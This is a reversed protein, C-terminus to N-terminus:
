VAVPWRDGSGTCDTASAHLTVNSRPPGLLERLTEHRGDFPEHTEVQCNEVQVIVNRKGEESDGDLLGQVQSWSPPNMNEKALVGRDTLRLQLVEYRFSCAGAIKGDKRLWSPVAKLTEQLLLPRFDGSVRCCLRAVQPDGQICARAEVRLEVLGCDTMCELARKLLWSFNEIIVNQWTATAGRLIRAIASALPSKGDAETERDQTKTGEIVRDTAPGMPPDRPDIAARGRTSTTQAADEVAATVHDAAVSARYEMIKREYLTRAEPCDQWDTPWNGLADDQEGFRGELYQITANEAYAL